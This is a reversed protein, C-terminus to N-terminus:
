ACALGRQHRQHRTKVFNVAPGHLYVAFIHAVERAFRQSVGDANDALVRMEEVVGDQAVEFVSTGIGCLSLYYFGATGGLYVRQDGTKGFAVLGDYALSAITQRAAFLLPKGDGTDNEFIRGDDNQVFSRAMKIAFVFSGDLCGQGVDQSVARRQDHCM